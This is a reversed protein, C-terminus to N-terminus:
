IALIFNASKSNLLAPLLEANAIQKKNKLSVDAGERFTFYWKKL